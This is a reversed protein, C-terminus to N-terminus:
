KKKKSRSTKKKAKSKKIQVRASKRAKKIEREVKKSKKGVRTKRRAKIMKEKLHDSPKFGKKELKKPDDAYVRNKRKILRSLRSSTEHYIEGEKSAVYKHRPVSKRKKRKLPVYIKKYLTRIVPRDIFIKKYVPKEVTRVVERFIPKEVITPMPRMPMPRPQVPQVPQVPRASELKMPRIITQQPVLVKNKVEPVKEKKVGENQLKPSTGKLTHASRGRRKAAIKGLIVAVITLLILFVVYGGLLILSINDLEEGGMEQGFRLYLIVGILIFGVLTGILASIAYWKYKRYFNLVEDEM